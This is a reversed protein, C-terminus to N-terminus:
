TAACSRRRRTPSSSRSTPICPRRLNSGSGGLPPSRRRCTPWWAACSPPRPRRPPARRDGPDPALRAVQECLDAVQRVIRVFDGPAVEGADRAVVALADGLPAGRAWAAVAAAAQPEPARTHPVLHVDELGGLTASLRALAGSASPSSRAADSASATRPARGRAGRGVRRPGAHGVRRARRPEFVFASCCRGRRALARARRAAAPSCPRPSSSTPRTTCAACCAAASPSRGATSTASSKSCGSDGRSRRPSRAASRARRPPRGRVPRLQARPGRPRDRPRLAGVLNATLNYTPRFTSHLDPPPALAVRAMDAFHRRPASSSSRTARTTSAAADRAGPSSPTSGRPSRRAARRRRVQQVARHRGHARAHQHRALADRDRVGRRPAGGLLVARRRAEHVARAGRPARRRRSELAELWEHWGLAELDEDGLDATREEAIARIRRRSARDLLRMGERVCQRM